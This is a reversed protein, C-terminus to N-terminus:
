LPVKVCHVYHTVLWEHSESTVIEHQEGHPKVYDFKWATSKTAIKWVCSFYKVLMSLKKDVCPSFFYQYLFKIAIAWFNFSYNSKWGCCLSYPQCHHVLPFSTEKLLSLGTSLPNSKICFWFTPKKWTVSLCFAPRKSHLCVLAFNTAKLLTLALHASLQNRQIFVSWHFKKKKKKCYAASM